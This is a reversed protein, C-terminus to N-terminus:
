GEKNWNQVQEIMNGDRASGLTQALQELSATILNRACEEAITRPDYGSQNEILTEEIIDAIQSLSNM